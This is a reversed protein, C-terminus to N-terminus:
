RRGPLMRKLTDDRDVFHHWLAGLIHVAALGLLVYWVVETHFFAIEKAIAKDPTVLQPLNWGYFVVPQGSFQRLLFGLIPMALVTIYLLFHVVSSLAKQWPSGITAPRPHRSRWYLWLIVLLLVTLGLSFHVVMWRQHWPDGKAFLGHLEVAGWVAVLLLAVLWHLGKAAGTWGSAKAM